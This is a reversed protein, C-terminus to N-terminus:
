RDVRVLSLKAALPENIVVFYYFIIGSFSLTGECSFSFNAFESFNAIEKKM